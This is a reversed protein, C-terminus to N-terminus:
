FNRCADIDIEMPLVGGEVRNAHCRTTKIRKIESKIKSGIPHNPDNLKNKITISPLIILSLWGDLPLLFKLIDREKMSLSNYFSNEDENKIDSPDLIKNQKVLSENEIIRWESESYFDYDLTDTSNMPKFFQLFSKDEFTNLCHNFFKDYPLISSYGFYSLPRGGREFVFPRKVGIGLRGYAKAHIRSQSVKLETFSVRNVSPLTISGTPEMPYTKSPEITLWIGYKLINYLRELYLDEIHPLHRTLSKDQGGWKSDFSCDLDKGTWHILIDSHINYDNTM